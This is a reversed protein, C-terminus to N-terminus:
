LLKYTEQKVNELKLIVGKWAPVVIELPHESHLSLGEYITDTLLDRMRVSEQEQLDLYAFAAHPIRIQTHEDRANFNVVILLTEDGWKRMFAYEKNRNFGDGQVYELDFMLGESIAKEERALTLLRVYFQRLRRQEESLRRGDFKGNNAWSQLSSVGWYDFISTRGDIGSFGEMDMGQEGLEQGAYILLPNSLLCASVIMASEAGSGSGCFFGSAIRQEDHNELFYLMHSQIDETAQWQRSIGDAPYDKSTVGRLYDYMEVKDYLYDFGGYFIYSRYLSTDYIEAIFEVSPYESKVSAIAWHWFEVPVMHAMDCRFADIGKRCWFLLIDRMKQWTDPIPDFQKEGGGVYYVGYNLKVTEYWDERGPAATFCDNGTAKAPYEEYREGTNSDAFHETSFPQHPLYYFNNLPSFAWEPHDYEGFDKVGEPKAISHYERAVHNAVCDLVVKLGAKHTRKVLSEFEHMREPVREALDPDIDYYDTIAYPSGARGKVILPNNKPIGYASYDTTTAHRIVGTYWVHTAGLRRIEGLAKSTIGNLKGCGNEEISGNHVRSENYNAFTRPFIQYIIHKAM